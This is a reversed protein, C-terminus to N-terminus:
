LMHLIYNNHYCYVVREHQLYIIRLRISPAKRNVRELIADILVLLIEYCYILFFDFLIDIIADCDCFFVIM